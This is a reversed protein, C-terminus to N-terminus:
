PVLLITHLIRASLPIVCEEEDDVTNTPPGGGEEAEEEGDIEDDAKAGPPLDLSLHRVSLNPRDPSHIREQGM